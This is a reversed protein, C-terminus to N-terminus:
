QISVRKKKRTSWGFNGKPQHHSGKKAYKLAKSYESFANATENQKAVRNKPPQIVSGDPRYSVKEVVKGDVFEKTAAIEGSRHYEYWIGHKKGSVYEGETKKNGTQYFQTYLGELRAGNDLVQKCFILKSKPPKDGIRETGAPCVHVYRRKIVGPTKDRDCWANSLFLCNITAVITLFRGLKM